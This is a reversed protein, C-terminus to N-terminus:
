DRIKRQHIVFSNGDPDEGFSMFCVPTEIPDTLTAGNKRIRDVAAHVDEVAFMMVAGSTKVDDRWVGFTSGDRLTFEAGREQEKTPTIGLVDRYFAIARRPENVLMAAIDIGIINGDASKDSKTQKM